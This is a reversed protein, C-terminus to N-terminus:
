DKQWIRYAGWLTVLLLPFLYIPGPKHGSDFGLSSQKFVAQYFVERDNIQSTPSSEDGTVKITKSPFVLSDYSQSRINFYYWVINSISFDGNKAPYLEYVFQQTGRIGEPAYIINTLTAPENYYFSPPITFIPKPIHGINGNGSITIKLTILDSTYPLTDSIDVNMSFSEGVLGSNPLSTSPLAQVTLLFNPSHLTDTKDATLDNNAIKNNIKPNLREEIKYPIKATPVKIRGVKHPFWSAKYVEIWKGKVKNLVTDTAPFEEQAEKVEICEPPVLYHGLLSLDDPSFFYAKEPNNRVFIGGIVRVEEGKLVVSSRINFIFAAGPLGSNDAVQSFGKGIFLIYLLFIFLKPIRLMKGFFLAM